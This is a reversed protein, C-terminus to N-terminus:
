TTQSLVQKVELEGSILKPLLSDRTKILEENNRNNEDILDFLSKVSETFVNMLEIAPLIVSFDLLYDMQM